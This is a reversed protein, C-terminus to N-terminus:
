IKNGATLKKHGKPTFFPAVLDPYVKMIQLLGLSEPGKKLQDMKAVCQLLTFHLAICRTLEARDTLKTSVLPKTYGANLVIDSANLLLDQLSKDDPATKM